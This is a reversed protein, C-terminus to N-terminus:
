EFVDPMEFMDEEVAPAYEPDVSSFRDSGKGDDEVKTGSDVYAAMNLHQTPKRARKSPTDDPLPGLDDIDEEKKFHSQNVPQFQNEPGFQEAVNRKRKAKATSDGASGRTGGSARPTATKTRPTKPTSAATTNSNTGGSEARALKKLKFIHESVARPTPRENPNPWTESVKKYDITTNSLELIRLFLLRENSATWQIPM